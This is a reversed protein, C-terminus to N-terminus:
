PFISEEKEQQIFFLAKANKKMNEKLLDKKAQSLVNYTAQDRPEIFGNEVLDWLEQSCFLTKMKISWYEYNKWDFQPIQPQTLNSSSVGAM